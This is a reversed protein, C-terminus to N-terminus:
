EKNNSRKDHWKQSVMLSINSLDSLRVCVPVCVSLWICFCCKGRHIGVSFKNNFGLAPMYYFRWIELFWAFHELHCPIRSLAFKIYRSEVPLSISIAFMFFHKKIIKTHCTTAWSMYICPRRSCVRLLLLCFLLLLVMFALFYLFSLFSIEKQWM